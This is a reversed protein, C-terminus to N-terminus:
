AKVKRVGPTPSLSSSFPSALQGAKWSRTAFTPISIVREGNDERIASSWTEFCSLCSRRAQHWRLGTLISGLPMSIQELAEAAAFIAPWLLMQNWSLTIRESSENMMENRLRRFSAM